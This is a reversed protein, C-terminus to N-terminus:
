PTVPIKAGRVALGLESATVPERTIAMFGSSMPILKDTISYEPLEYLTTGTTTYHYIWRGNYSESSGIPLRTRGGISFAFGDASTSIAIGSEYVLQNTMTAGTPTAHTQLAWGTGTNVFVKGQEPNYSLLIMGTANAAIAGQISGGVPMSDFDDLLEPTGWASGDHAVVSTQTMLQGGFLPGSSQLSAVYGGTGSAVGSVETMSYSTAMSWASPTYTALRGVLDTNSLSGTNWGAVFNGAGDGAIQIGAIQIGAAVFEHEMGFATGNYVSGYLGSSTNEYWVIAISGGSVATTVTGTASLATTNITTATSWSTGNYTVAQLEMGGGPNVFGLLMLKGGGLSIPELTLSAGTLTTVASFVSASWTGSKTFEAMEYSSGTSAIAFLRSGSSVAYLKNTTTITAPASWTTATADYISWYYTGSINYQTWVVLVDGASNTATSVNESSGPQATLSVISTLAPTPTPIIATQNPVEVAYPVSGQEDDEQAWYAVFEGHNNSALGLYQAASQVTTPAADPALFDAALYLEWARTSPTTFNPSYRSVNVRNKGEATVQSTWALGYGATGSNSALLHIPGLEVIDNTQVTAAASWSSGNFLSYAVLGSGYWAVMYEDIADSAMSVYNGNSSWGGITVPGAWAFTGGGQDHYRHAEGARTVLAFGAGDSAVAAVSQSAITTSAISGDYYSVVLTSTFPSSTLVQNYAVLFKTGNTAIKPPSVGYTDGGSCPNGATGNWTTGSGWILDVCSYSTYNLPITRLAIVIDTGSSDITADTLGYLTAITTEAGWGSTDWQAVYVLHGGVTSSYQNRVYVYGARGGGIFRADVTDPTGLGAGPTYIAANKVTVDTHAVWWMMITSGNTVLGFFTDWTADNYLGYMSTYNTITVSAGWGTTPSYPTYILKAGTGTMVAKMVVGDGSDTFASKLFRFDGQGRESAVATTTLATPTPYLSQSQDNLGGNPDANTGGESGCAVLFISILLITFLSRYTPIKIRM